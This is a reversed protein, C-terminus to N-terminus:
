FLVLSLYRSLGLIVDAYLLIPVIRDRTGIYLQYSSSSIILLGIIIHTKRSWWQDSNLNPYLIIVVAIGILLFIWPAIERDYYKMAIGAILLRLVICITLYVQTKDKNSIGIAHLLQDFQPDGKLINTNM